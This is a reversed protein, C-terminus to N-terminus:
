LNAHQDEDSRDGNDRLYGIILGTVDATVAEVPQTGDVQAFAPVVDRLALYDERLKELSALTGERKRDFLVEAPADLYIVLDPRPYFHRLVFGHLRRTTSRHEGGKVDGAYFDAFFHRDFIVIRGRAHHWVAIGQRYWEEALRNALALWRRAIRRSGGATHDPGAAPGPPPTTGRGRRVARVLRTSPLLRDSSEASVGMYLYRAPMPLERELRHGITTKGSGDPGVLAVTTM